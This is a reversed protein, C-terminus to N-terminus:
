SRAGSGAERQALAQLDEPKPRNSFYNYNLVWSSPHRRVLRELDRACRQTTAWLDRAEAASIVDVVECRCRGGALPRSWAVAIPVKGKAAFLAPGASVSMPVGCFRVWVGGRKPAVSQDVLLGLSKGERLGQLLARLAGEVPVIEQGIARRAGFLLKTMRATGIPKSVIMMRHGELFALQSPQEWCGLHGSVTVVPRHERLFRVASGSLSGSEQCRERPKRMTWLIYGVTRTMNRYSRLLVLRERPTPAFKARDPDFGFIDLLDRREGRLIRLNELARRKGRRDFFFFIRSLLDCLGLLARRSLWPVVALALGIGVWEVPALMKEKFKRNRSM